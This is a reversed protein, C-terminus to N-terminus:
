FQVLVFGLSCTDCSLLSFSSTCLLCIYYSLCLFELPPEFVAAAFTCFWGESVSHRAHVDKAMGALCLLKLNASLHRGGTNM